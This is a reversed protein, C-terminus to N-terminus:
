CSYFLMWMQFGSWMHHSWLTGMRQKSVILCFIYHTGLFPIWMQLSIFLNPWKIKTHRVSSNFSILFQLKVTVEILCFKLYEERQYANEKQFIFPRIHLDTFFFLMYYKCSGNEIITWIHNKHNFPLDTRFIFHLFSLDYVMELM